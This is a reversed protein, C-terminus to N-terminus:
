RARGRDARRVLDRDDMPVVEGAIEQVAEHGKGLVFVVDAPGAGTVATAVAERRDAIERVLASGHRAGAAVQARIAAPDEWRPNDDTVIVVDAARSAALGMDERKGHDRNGGAGLVAWLRGSRAQALERGVSLAAAVADPTHAYDVLVICGVDVPVREMRGPPGGSSAIGRAASAPDCGSIVAAAAAAVANSVNFRGPLGVGAPVDVGPGVLRFAHGLGDPRVDRATWDRGSGGSTQGEVGYTYCPVALEGALRRGWSDDGNVLGRVTRGPEFLRRKSAFYSDRGGHFELHDSGLNTFVAVEFRCGAIRGLELAHSSVEVAVLRVGRQVMLALVAQLEPAEPTTRPSDIAFGPARIGTTGVVGAPIGSTLAAAELLTAVTTKGNTGTIGVVKMDSSPDGYMWSALSGLVARPDPVVLVPVGPSGAQDRGEPDTLVATAGAAVAKAAFTAGHSREGKLAVYLDGAVVGRSDQTIGRVQAGHGADPLGLRRAVDGIRRAAADPRLRALEDAM